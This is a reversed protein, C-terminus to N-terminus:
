LSTVTVSEVCKDSHGYYSQPEGPEVLAITFSFPSEALIGFINVDWAPLDVSFFLYFFSSFINPM